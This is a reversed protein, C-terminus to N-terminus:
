RGYKGPQPKRIRRRNGQQRNRYAPNRREAIADRANLALNVLAAELDGPDIDVAWGDESLAMELNIAPTLSKAILNEMGRVFTDVSVRQTIGADTRSFDLLKRTLDGARRVGQLAADAPKEFRPTPAAACSSSSSM